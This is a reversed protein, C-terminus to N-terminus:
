TYLNSLELDTCSTFPLNHYNFSISCKVCTDKTNSIAIFNDTGVCRSHTWKDCYKCLYATTQQNISVPKKCIDCCNNNPNYYENTIDGILLDTAASIDM